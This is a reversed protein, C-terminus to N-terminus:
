DVLDERRRIRESGSTAFRDIALPGLIRAPHQTTMIVATPQGLNRMTRKAQRLLFGIL